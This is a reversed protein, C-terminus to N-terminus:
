LLWRMGSIAQEPNYKTWEKLINAAVQHAKIQQHRTVSFHNFAAHHLTHDIKKSLYPHPVNDTKKNYLAILQHYFTRLLTEVSKEFITTQKQLSKQCEKAIAQAEACKLPSEWTHQTAHSQIKIRVSKQWQVYCNQYNEIVSTYSEQFSNIEMDYLLFESSYQAREIQSATSSNNILWTLPHEAIMNQVEEYDQHDSFWRLQLDLYDFPQEPERVAHQIEALCAQEEAPQAQQSTLQRMFSYFSALTPLSALSTLAVAAVKVTVAVSPATLVIAATPAACSVSVLFRQQFSWNQPNLANVRSEAATVHTTSTKTDQPQLFPVEENESSALSNSSACSSLSSHSCSQEDSLLSTSPYRPVALFALTDM